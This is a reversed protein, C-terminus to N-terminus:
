VKKLAWNVRGGSTGANSSESAQLTIVKSSLAVAGGRCSFRWTEDDHGRLVIAEGTLLEVSEPIHIRIEEDVELHNECRLDCGNAAVFISTKVGLRGNLRLIAGETSVAQDALSTMSTLARRPSAWDVLCLRQRGHSVEFANEACDAVLALATQRIAVIAADAAHVLPEPQALSLGAAEFVARVAERHPPSQQLCVLGGDGLTLNRLMPLMRDIALRMDEPVHDKAEIMAGALPLVILTLRLLDEARHTRHSGDALVLDSLSRSLQDVAHKHVPELGRFATAASTLSAARLMADQATAPRFSYARRALQTALNFIGNDGSQNAQRLLHPGDWSLALLAKAAGAGDLPMRNETAMRELIEIGYIAHLIKGTAVFHKLWGLKWEEPSLRVGFRREYLAQAHERGGPILRMVPHRLGTVAGGPWGWGTDQRLEPRGLHM